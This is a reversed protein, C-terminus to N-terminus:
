YVVESYFTWPSTPTVAVLEGEFFFLRFVCQPGFLGYNAKVAKLQISMPLVQQEPNLLMRRRRSISDSGDSDSDGDSDNTHAVRNVVGGMGITAYQSSSVEMKASLDKGKVGEGGISTNTTAAMTAMTAMTAMSPLVRHRNENHEGASVNLSNAFDMM